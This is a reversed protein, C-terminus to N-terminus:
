WTGRVGLTPLFPFSTIPSSNRFRYDYQVAEVNKINLVNIVDIYVGFSWRDFLWDREARADLQYFTPIRISRAAGRVADYGGTDADYTAGIVPTDPRGSAM